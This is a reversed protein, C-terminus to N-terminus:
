GAASVISAARKRIDAITQAIREMDSRTGLLIDQTFWVAEECLRDNVPCQNAEVWKALREKGYIRQYHPNFALAKVHASNNLSTYGSSASVNAKSLQALFMARSMNAFQAKDYRWMYLHWASRTCGSALKAPTAGPIENLMQTLYTANADRLKANKEARALQQLLLGAQFETLRFNSGRGSSAAPKGGGPTHFNFCKNAFEEDNTVIAGGEGSSINKSTQFSICGALSHNGVPQGRYEALPAQCADEVVTLNKSKAIAQIADMDATSGGIHVPMILRTDASLKESIKSADIQFTNPDSDVFIPLGYYQTIANFTAVFTYPPLIVEDGPGINLAGMSTLLATTGSSTALCYKAKMTAAFAAEFQELLRGGGPRGWRGSNLVELLANAELDDWYPWRVVSKGSTLSVALKQADQGAAVANGASGTIYSLVGAAAAGRILNRRDFSESMQVRGAILIASIHVWM